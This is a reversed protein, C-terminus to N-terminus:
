NKQNEMRKDTNKKGHIADLRGDLWDFKVSM